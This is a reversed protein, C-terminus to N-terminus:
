SGSVIAFAATVLASEIMLLKRSRMGPALSAATMLAAVDLASNM